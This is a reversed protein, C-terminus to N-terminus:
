KKIFVNNDKRIDFIIKKANPIKPLGPMLFVDGVIPIVFKSAHNFEIDKISINFNKPWNLKKSDGTISYFTKAFCVFYNDIYNKYNILKNRAKISFTVKKAGYIKTAVNEIKEFIDSDLHYTFNIKTDDKINREILDFVQKNKNPSTKSLYSIECDINNSKLIDKLYFLEKKDDNSFRNIVVCYNLNFSKIIEIHKLVNNFGKLIAKRNLEFNNEDGIFNAQYKLAKLTITLVILNPNLNAKRCKINLFKEMGLDSGFGAETIVYDYNKLAIKTAVISNCGHAINAFPGGHVLIPNNLKSFVLNPLFANRLILLISDIIKLDKIYIPNNDKSFAILTNELMEKLDDFSNALCFCAMLKSAATISFNTNITKDKLDYNITRLCRDNLDICRNWFIKKSDINLESKQYIENEIISYILNNAQEIFYFDGTFGTNILLNNKLSSQGFGTAGGKIGFYPGMSPQRLCAISKQKYYNLCDNIGITITTKGEGSPTPNISTVLILKGKYNLNNESYLSKDRIKWVENPFSLLQNKNFKIKRKDM